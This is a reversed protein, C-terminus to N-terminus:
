DHLKKLNSLKFAKSKEEGVQWVGFRQSSEVLSVVSGCRGNLEQAKALGQIEVIDGVCLNSELGLALSSTCSAEAAFPAVVADNDGGHFFKCDEGYRCYGKFYFSCPTRARAIVV